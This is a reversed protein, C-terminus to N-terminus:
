VDCQLGLILLTKSFMILFCLELSQYVSVHNPQLKFSVLVTNIAYRLECNTRYVCNISLAM